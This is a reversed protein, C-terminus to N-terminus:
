TKLITLPELDGYTRCVPTQPALGARASIEPVLRQVRAVLDSMRVDLARSGRGGGAPQLAQLLAATLVGFRQTRDERALEDARAAGIVYMGREYLAHIRRALEEPDLGATVGGGAMSAHCVDLVLVVEAPVSTIREGLDLMAVGTADVEAATPVLDHNMFFLNVSRPDFVRVGHGSLFVFLVDREAGAARHRARISEVMRDLESLIAVKTAKEDLLLRADISRFARNRAKAPARARGPLRAQAFADRVATADRAPFRLARNRADAFRAVGVCLLFLRGPAAAPGGRAADLRPGDVVFEVPVSKAQSNEAHLSFRNPGPLLLLPPIECRVRARQPPRGESWVVRGNRLLALRTPLYEPCPSEVTFALHLREGERRMAGDPLEVIPPLISAVDVPDIAVGQARAHAESGHRVVYSVIDPRYFAKFRDSPILLAEQHIGRNVRYGIQMAAAGDGDYYGSRTWLAWSEDAGVYLTLDPERDPTEGPAPPAGDGIFWLPVTGDGRRGVCWKRTAMGADRAEHDAVAGLTRQRLDFAHQRGTHRPPLRRAPVTGFVVREDETIGPAHVARGCGCIAAGDAEAIRQRPRWFHIAQNDGGASAVLGDNVFALAAVAGDHGLYTSRLVPTGWPPFDYVSVPVTQSGPRAGDQPSADPALGVALRDGGPAFATSAVPSETDFAGQESGDHRFWLVRGRPPAAGLAVTSASVALTMPDIAQATPLSRDLALGGGPTFHLWAVDGSREGPGGVAVVLAAAGRRTPAFRLAAPLATARRARGVTLRAVPEPTERAGRHRLERTDVILVEARRLAGERRNAVLALWRGDPSFDADILLGPHVFRSRLNGTAVEFVQVETTRGADAGVGADARRDAAVARAVDAGYGAAFPPAAEPPAARQRWPRLSVLWRGDPSAAIRSVRGDVAGDGATGEVRGLLRRLPRRERADWIRVTTDGATALTGGGQWAVLQVIAGEHTGTDLQAFAEFPSIRPM